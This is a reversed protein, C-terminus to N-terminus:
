LWFYCAGIFIIWALSIERCKGNSKKTASPKNNFPSSTLTISYFSFLKWTAVAVMLDFHVTIIFNERVAEQIPWDCIVLGSRNIYVSFYCKRATHNGDCKVKVRIRPSISPLNDCTAEMLYILFRLVLANLSQYLTLSLIPHLGWRELLFCLDLVCTKSYFLFPKLVIWDNLSRPLHKQIETENDTFHAHYYTSM